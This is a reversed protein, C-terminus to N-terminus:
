NTGVPNVADNGLVHHNRVMDIETRLVLISLTCRELACFYFRELQLGQDHIVEDPAEPVPEAVNSPLAGAQIGQAGAQNQDNALPAHKASVLVGHELHVIPSTKSSGDEQFPAKMTPLLPLPEVAHRTKQLHGGSSSSLLGSPAAPPPRDIHWLRIPSTGLTM